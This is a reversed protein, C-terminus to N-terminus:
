GTPHVVESKIAGMSFGVVHARSIKLHDLLRVIDQGMEPGYAKPDAPKGSKGHGRCDIAIVRHDKSLDTFVGPNIWHRELTGTYGHILVIPAGQGQEIFRIRVGKSDFFTDPPVVLQPAAPTPMTAAIFAPVVFLGVVCLSTTRM